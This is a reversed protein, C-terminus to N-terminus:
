NLVTGPDKRKTDNSGITENIKESNTAPDEITAPATRDETHDRNDTEEKGMLTDENTKIAIKNEAETRKKVNENGATQKKTDMYGAIIAIETSDARANKRIEHTPTDNQNKLRRTLM